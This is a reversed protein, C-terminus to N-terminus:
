FLPGLGFDIIDQPSLQDNGIWWDTSPYIRSSNLVQQLEWNTFGGPGYPGESTDADLARDISVYDLNFHVRGGSAISREAAQAFRQQFPGIDALGQKMWDANMYAGRAQAFPGLLDGGLPDGDLGLAISKPGSGGDAGSAPDYPTLGLPDSLIQPNAV